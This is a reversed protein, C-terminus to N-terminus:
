MRVYHFIREISCAETFSFEITCLKGLYRHLQSLQISHKMPLEELFFVGKKTQKIVLSPTTQSILM